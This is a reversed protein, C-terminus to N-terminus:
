YQTLKFVIIKGDIYCAAFIDDKVHYINPIGGTEPCLLADWKYNKDILYIKGDQSGFLINNNWALINTQATDTGFGIKINKILKGNKASIIFFNDKYSKIFIDAKSSSIGISNYADFNNKQWITRGLLLDISSITNDQSVVFVSKEDSVPKCLVQSNDSSDDKLLKWNIIGSKADVCYLYGDRSGYIIRDNVFLPDGAILGHASHNEWIMELSIIDYCYLSGKSTGAIVCTAPVGNYEGDLTILQSTVPENLGLTQIIKGNAAKFSILDGEATGAVIVSDSVALRSLIAEGSKNQWILNGSMDMCFIDGNQAAAYIYNETTVIPASLTKNLDKQWLIEAKISEARKVPESIFNIFRTSNNEENIGNKSINGTIIVFPNEKKNNKDKIINELYNKIFPFEFQIGSMWAYKNNQPTINITFLIFLGIILIIKKMKLM